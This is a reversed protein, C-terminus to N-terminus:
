PDGQERFGGERGRDMAGQKLVTAFSHEDVRKARAKVVRRSWPRFRLIEEQKAPFGLNNELSYLATAKPVWLWKGERDSPNTYM